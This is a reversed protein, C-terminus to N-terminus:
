YFDQKKKCVKGQEDGKFILAPSLMPKACVPFIQTFLPCLARLALWVRRVFKYRLSITGPNSINRSTFGSTAPQVTSGQTALRTGVKWGGTSRNEGERRRGERLVAGPKSVTHEQKLPTLTYSHATDGAPAQFSVLASLMRQLQLTWHSLQFGQEAM